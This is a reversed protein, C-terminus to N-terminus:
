KRNLLRWIRSLASEPRPDEISQGRWRKEIPSRPKMFFVIYAAVFCGLGIWIMFDVGVFYGVIILVVGAVLLNRSTFADTPAFGGGRSPQPRQASRRAVRTPRGSPPPSENVQELIEEIERQYRDNKGAMGRGEGAICCGYWRFTRATLLLLGREGHEKAAGETM